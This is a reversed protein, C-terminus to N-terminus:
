ATKKDLGMFVISAIALIIPGVLLGVIGILEMGGFMGVFVILPHIYARKGIFYPRVVYDLISGIILGYAVVMIALHLNAHQIYIWAGAPVYLLYPGIIPILSLVAAVIGALLPYPLGFLYFGVAAVIGQIVGIVIHVHVFADVNLKIKEFIEKKNKSPLPLHKMSWKVLKDGDTLFYFFSIFFVFFSMVLHPLKTVFLSAQEAIKTVSMRALDKTTPSIKTIDLQSFYVYMDAIEKLMFQVGSRIFVVAFIFIVATLILASLNKNMKKSMRLHIPYFLYAFLASLLLASIFSKIILLGIILIAAVTIFYMHDKKVEM